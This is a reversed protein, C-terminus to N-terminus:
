KLPVPGAQKQPNAVVPDDIGHIVLGFHHGYFYSPM